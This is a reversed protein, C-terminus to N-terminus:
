KVEVDFNCFEGGLPHPGVIQPKFSFTGIAAPTGSGTLVVLQAGTTAFSGTYSFTIGNVSTTAITFNGIVTVYVRISVKNSTTLATTSTYNGM